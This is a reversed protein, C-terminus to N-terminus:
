LEEKLRWTGMTTGIYVTSDFSSVEVAGVSLDPGLNETINEWSKGRDLSRFIGNSQGRGPANKAAYIREPHKPDVAVANIYCLSFYDKTLGNKENKLQWSNGDYIVLGNSFAVYIRMPDDPAVALATVSNFPVPCIPVFADWSEGADKSLLIEVQKKASERFSYVWDGNGDFIARVTHSIRKWSEGSNNSKFPGAFVLNPRQPHFAIFQFRDVLEKFYIWNHGRDQSIALGKEMWTGISAVITDGHVSASGSSKLGFIRQLNPETFTVGNNDTIWLGQDTLCFIMRGDPAFAIDTMNGGTFGNGSYGWTEGGDTTKLIRERGNSVTLATGEETPHPAVPSSFWFGEKALMNDKNTNLSMRWTSGGDHSFFPKLPSLHARLYLFASNVPSIAIDTFNTKQPLGSASNTFTEGRNYSKYVGDNGVAAFIIDPSKPSICISRPWDPLNKGLKQFNGKSFRFLGQETAIFLEGPFTPDEVMDIIHTDSLGIKTWSNGGDASRLLGESYSGAFIVPSSNKGNASTDFCFLHGKSEQKYFDTKYVLNWTEGGDTTRYIGQLGQPYKKAREFDYGLFGAAFVIDPNRPDISLARAGNAHFGHNKPAWTWGKDKSKWVQSTDVSFYVIDPNSQSYDIAHVYQFGEGGPIGLERQNETRLPVAEWHLSWSNEPFMLLISAIICWSFPSFITM